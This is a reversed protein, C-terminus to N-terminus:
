KKKAMNRVMLDAVNYPHQMICRRDCIQELISTAVTMSSRQFMCRVSSSKADKERSRLSSSAASLRLPSPRSLIINVPVRLQDQDNTMTPISLHTLVFLIPIRFLHRIRQCPGAGDFFPQDSSVSQSFYLFMFVSKSSDWM